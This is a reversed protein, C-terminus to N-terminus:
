FQILASTDNLGKIFLKEIDFGGVVTDAPIRVTETMLGRCADGQTHDVLEASCSKPIARNCLNLRVEFRHEKCGGQYVVDVLITDTARDFSASVIQAGFTNASYITTTLIILLINLAIKM